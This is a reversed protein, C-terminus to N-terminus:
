QNVELVKQNELNEGNHDHNVQCDSFAIYVLLSMTIVKQWTLFEMLKLIMKKESLRRNNKSM